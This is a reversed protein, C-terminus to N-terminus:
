SHIHKYLKQNELIRRLWLLSLDTIAYNLFPKQCTSKIVLPFLFFLGLSLNEDFVIGQFEAVLDVMHFADPNCTELPTGPCLAFM